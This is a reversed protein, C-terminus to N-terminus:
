LTAELSSKKTGWCSAVYGPSYLNLTNGGKKCVNVTIFLIIFSCLICRIFPFRYFLGSVYSCGKQASRDRYTFGLYFRYLIYLYFVPHSQTYPHKRDSYYLQFCPHSIVPSWSQLIAQYSLISATQVPQRHPHLHYLSTTSIPLSPPLPKTLTKVSVSPCLCAPLCIFISHYPLRAHHLFVIKKNQKYTKLRSHQKPVTARSTSFDASRRERPLIWTSSATHM